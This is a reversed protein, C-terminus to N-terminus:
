LPQLRVTRFHIEGGESQLGIPGRLAECDTAENVKVGNIVVTLNGGQLTIDAVNWDGPAREATTLRPLGSLNGGLEHNAITDLRAPDGGLKMEHFAYIDGASGSKLQAEICRPLPRPMGNLRMLIGSNGPPTGPAWRWEVVLRFDQFVEQTYLYGMPEGRCVLIGDQVRWVDDRAYRHDALYSRWGTLDEGNFLNLTGDAAVRAPPTSRCGAVLFAAVLCLLFCPKRM